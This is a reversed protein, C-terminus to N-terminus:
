VFIHLLLLNHTYKSISVSILPAAKITSSLAGGSGLCLSTGILPAAEGFDKYFVVEEEFERSMEIGGRDDERERSRSTDDRFRDDESRSRDGEEEKEEDSIVSYGMVDGPRVSIRDMVDPALSAFGRNSVISTFRNTGVLSYCGEGTDASVTPSPRWVHFNVTEGNRPYIQAQWETINGCCHFQYTVAIALSGSSLRFSSTRSENLPTEFVRGQLCEQGKSFDIVITNM